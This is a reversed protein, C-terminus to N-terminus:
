NEAILRELDVVKSELLKELSTHVERIQSKLSANQSKLTKFEEWHSRREALNANM